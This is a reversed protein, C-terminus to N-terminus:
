KLRMDLVRNPKFVYKKKIKLAICQMIIIKQFIKYSSTFIIMKILVINVFLNILHKIKNLVTDNLNRNGPLLCSKKEHNTSCSNYVVSITNLWFVM